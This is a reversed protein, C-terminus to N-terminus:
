GGMAERFLHTDAYQVFKVIRGDAVTWVHAFAADLRNKPAAAKGAGTYRGLALVRDEGAPLLEDPTAAFGEFDGAIKVFVNEFIEAAGSYRGGYPLGAAETWDTDALLDAVTGMDGGAFAEYLREIVQIRQEAM